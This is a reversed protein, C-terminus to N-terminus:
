LLAILKDPYDTIIGNVGKSILRKMDKPDNVTWPILQINKEKLFTILSDNILTYDPSYISPTFTIKSFADRFNENGEVLYATTIEPHKKNLLNLINVDFSQLTTRSTLDYRNLIDVVLSIFIEPEPYFVGYDKAISKLEINYRISQNSISDMKQIVDKLLPKYIPINKQESFRPHPIASCAVKKIEEYPTKFFNTIGYNNDCIEESFQPEHSVIIQQDKSVVVDMELTTVGLKIAHEFAIISNEPLLGRCGRHGQIDFSNPAMTNSDTKKVNVNKDTESSTTACGGLFFLLLASSLLSYANM